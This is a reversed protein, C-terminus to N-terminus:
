ATLGGEQLREDKYSLDDGTPCYIESCPVEEGDRLCRIGDISQRFAAYRRVIASAYKPDLEMTYCIRNLQEAAMLTSGSGGFLDLAIGNEQSSMRMPYAILPLPKMTPHLESRKPRDFEWITTQKRDGYFKHAQGEKFGYLVPEHRQQFDGRGLVLSDKVWICTSSYHFGANVFSNYFNVKESDSHFVYCAGGDALSIYANKMADLLFHYFADSDSWSDNEISMGTGGKYSVNYPPDTICVNALHGDMLRRVDDPETSSGCCLRHRGLLWIDGPKVFAEADHAADIDFDDDQTPDEFDPLSNILETLDEDTYGTLEIPIDGNEGLDKLLETLSTDDMDALEAIRNDAIMDAWEEAESSYEQYDVPVTGSGIARAAEFRGHGKVIFGSRKSVTVPQRWGNGRIIQGLLAVQSKPHQNPNKPNPVLKELPLLEDYACFVPIGDDTRARPEAQTKYASM